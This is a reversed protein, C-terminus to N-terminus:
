SFILNVCYQSDNPFHALLRDAKYIDSTQLFDILKRRMLGLNGPENGARSPQEGVYCLLM